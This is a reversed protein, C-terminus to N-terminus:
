IKILYNNKEANVPLNIQSKRNMLYNVIITIEYIVILPLVMIILSLGDTPPLFSTFIFMAAIAHRRKEKLFKQDIIRTKVLFTLVIPFQFILGLLVSTLIIQSLFKNIDWLNKIGLSLNIAAISNLVSYLVTFGYAFGALFLVLGIPLLVFFFKKEKKNLGDKLFNYLYYIFLPLCIILGTYLGVSMALDLFQFPSTVILTANNLKFFKIILKLIQGSSFFGIVFFIIFFIVLNYLRRRIDEFYQYYDSFKKKLEEEM